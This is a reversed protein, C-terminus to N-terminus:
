AKGAAKVVRAVPIESITYTDPDYLSFRAADDELVALAPRNEAQKLPLAAWAALGRHFPDKSALFPNLHGAAPIVKEPYIRALRGVGWLLGRQLMEHELFNQDPVMYSLLIRHYEEALKEDRAMTEAMAEPAGWGIGGSEDNLSWMLRRMIVRAPEMEKKALQAVVMGAASVARWKVLATKDYFFSILSNIAIREPIACIRDFGRTPDEAQLQLGIEKKVQRQSGQRKM